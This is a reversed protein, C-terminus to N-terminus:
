KNALKVLLLSVSGALLVLSIFNNRGCGEEDWHASIVGSLAWVLTPYVTFVYRSFDHLITNELIFYIVVDAGLLVLSLTGANAATFNGYYELVIDLNILNAVTIWTGYIAMGNLVLYRAFNPNFNLKLFDKEYVAELKLVVQAETQTSAYLLLELIFIVPFSYQPLENGWLYTWVINLLNVGTFLGLSLPSFPVAAASSQPVFTWAYGIWLLQWTYIVGWIAFTWGAPTIQTYFEFSVNATSNKFGYRDAQPIAALGNVLIAALFVTTTASLSVVFSVSPSTHHYKVGQGDVVYKEADLSVKKMESM